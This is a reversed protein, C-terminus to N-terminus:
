HGDGAEGAQAEKFVTVQLQTRPDVVDGSLPARWATEAAERLLAPLLLRNVTCRFGAPAEGKPGTLTPSQLVCVDPCGYTCQYSCLCNRCVAPIPACRAVLSELRKRDLEFAGTKGDLAGIQVQRCAIEPERSELFCGTAIDGPALNLVSRLVNCHRGFLSSPRVISTMVPVGMQEGVRRAELFGEVFRPADEATLTSHTGPSVYVPELRIELPSFQALYAVIEAQRGLGARTVTARLHFPTGASRLIGVTRTVSPSTPRGARTPRQRDQIDPPGDLSLGVLDFRGAYRLAKKESMVGNTAAYTRLRVGYRRATPTLLAFIRDVASEQLLPEGGGHFAVTFPLRHEACSAAVVEAAARVAQDTPIAAKRGAPTSHCYGCRLNCTNNLFLTLCEPSFSAQAQAVEDQALRAAQILQLAARKALSSDSPRAPLGDGETWASALRSVQERVEAARAVPLLCLRRPAYFAAYGGATHMFVPLGNSVTPLFSPPFEAEQSADVLPIAREWWKSTPGSVKNNM